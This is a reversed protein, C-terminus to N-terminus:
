KNSCKPAAGTGTITGHYTMKCRFKYSNITLTVTGPHGIVGYDAGHHMCPGGINKDAHYWTADFFTPDHPKFGNACGPDSPISVTWRVSWLPDSVAETYVTHYLAQTFVATLATPRCAVTMFSYIENLVRDLQLVLSHNLDIYRTSLSLDLKLSRLDNQIAQIHGSPIIADLVKNISGLVGEIETSLNLSQTAIETKAWDRVRVLDQGLTLQERKSTLAVSEMKELEACSSSADPAPVRSGDRVIAADIGQWFTMDVHPTLSASYPAGRDLAQAPVVIVMLSVATLAAVAGARAVERLRRM